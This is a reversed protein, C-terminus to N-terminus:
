SRLRLRGPCLFRPLLRSGAAETSGLCKKLLMWISGCFNNADRPSFFYEAAPYILNLRNLFPLKSSFGTAPLGSLGLIRRFYLVHHHSSQKRLLVQLFPPASDQCSGSPALPRASLLKRSLLSKVSSRRGLHSGHKHIGKSDLM